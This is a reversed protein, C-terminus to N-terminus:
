SRSSGLSVEMTRIVEEKSKVALELTSIKAKLERVLEPEEPELIVVPINAREEELELLFAQREKDWKEYDEQTAKKDFRNTSEDQGNRFFVVISEKEERINTIM